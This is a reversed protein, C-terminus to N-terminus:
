AAFLRQFLAMGCPASPSHRYIGSTVLVHGDRKYIQVDHTFNSRATLMGAKRIMEGLIIMGMGFQSLAQATAPHQSSKLGLAVHAEVNSRESRGADCSSM